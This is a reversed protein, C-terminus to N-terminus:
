RHLMIYFVQFDILGQDYLFKLCSENICIGDRLEHFVPIRCGEYLASILFRLTGGSRICIFLFPILLLKLDMNAM